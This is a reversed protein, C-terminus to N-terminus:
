KRLLMEPSIRSAERISPALSNRRNQFIRSGRDTGMRAVLNTLTMMIQSGTTVASVHASVAGADTFRGVIMLDVAGYMAQLFLAALVPLAFRVLPLLIQWFLRFESAGDIRSAELIEGSISNRFYNSVLIVNFANMLYNPMILALISDKINVINTYVFYQAVIGGNFLMTLLLLATILKQGPLGKVTLGYSFMSTIILSVVTGIAAVIITNIYGRGVTTWSDVIYRYAEASWKSPFYSFGEKLATANDTFSGILLLIIPLIAFTSLIILIVNSLVKMGKGQVM